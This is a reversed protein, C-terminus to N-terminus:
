SAQIEPQPEMGYTERIRAPTLVEKPPGFAALERNMLLITDFIDAATNLDHHSAIVLRGEAALSDLLRGLSQSAPADLGTFPEDLLLVHAEQALARALFARQQQGGSLESIQRDALSEMGLVHLSKEVIDRDHRGFKKWLGLSPYRGMEVLARVTIPFSWDVDSRQPLYAIEGPTDHLPCGNWLIKGSDPRILGALAKILTSKGAGNPGMLALTHGCTISFSIGNLALLSGYYVSLSDVELRHRDPHSAHAGWCIHDQTCPPAPSNMEMLLLLQREPLPRLVLPHRLRHNGRRNWNWRSPTDPTNEPWRASVTLTVSGNNLPLGCETEEHLGPTEPGSFVAAAPSPFPKRVTPADSRSSRPFMRPKRRPASHEAEQSGTTPATMNYLFFGLLIVVGLTPFFQRLPTSTM